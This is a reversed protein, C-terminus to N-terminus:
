LARESRRRRMIWVLVSASGSLPLSVILGILAGQWAGSIWLNVAERQTAPPGGDGGAAAFMGAMLAGSAAFVAAVAIFVTRAGTGSDEHSQGRAREARRGPPPERRGGAGLRSPGAESPSTRMLAGFIVATVIGGIFFPAFLSGTGHLAGVAAYCSSMGGFAAFIAFSITTWKSSLHRPAEM